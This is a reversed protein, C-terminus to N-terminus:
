TEKTHPNKYPSIESATKAKKLDSFNTPFSEAETNIQNYEGYLKEYEIWIGEPTFPIDLHKQQLAKCQRSVHVYRNGISRHGEAAKHFNFFTQIGSLSAAGFALFISVLALHENALFPLVSNSSWLIASSGVNESPLANNIAIIGQLNVLVIGMFLNALIVPIGFVRHWLIKRGSASFHKSKGIKSDIRLEEIAALGGSVSKEQTM